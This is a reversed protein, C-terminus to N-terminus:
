DVGLDRLMSKTLSQRIDFYGEWPDSRLSSLRRFINQITYQDPKLEPRIEDWSVTVAVPAGPRARTSFPAVATAGRGNRLYDIFIKGKRQSKSSKTLFKNPSQDRVREAIAKAAPKVVDFGHRRTLPAVVHIGKGGTLKPFSELDFGALVDRLLYAAGLVEEWEVDDAPDLDFILTDPRELRDNRSLWPHIELVGFQALTVLGEASNITLYEDKGSKEPVTVSAIVDPMGQSRHKQYFCQKKRGEPCRVISLPRDATYPLLYEAVDAYYQAVELKTIQADPFVKREPSTIEIGCVQNMESNPTKTKPRPRSQPKQTKSPASKETERVVDDPNRDERLGLFSPHRLRGDTTWETFSVEGVLDPTVWTVDKAERGEPPDAFPPTKRSLSNLKTRLDKLTTDDFGTGVRGAYVLDGSDSYVGLLLAGFGIRSGSPETFGAIVFEQRRTCKVKVWDRTRKGYYRSSARKGIIGELGTECAKRHFAVGHGDIHDSFRITNGDLSISRNLLARLASKRDLLKAGRLDKGDCWLLDFAYYTLETKGKGKLARQLAEFSSAGNDDLAVVEGDIIADGDIDKLAETIAAFKDTWAKDNRSLLEIKDGDKIAIIRYGDHKIEYLWGESQPPSDVLTALEPNVPRRLIKSQTAGKIDEPKETIGEAVQDITRDTLISSPERDVIPKGSQSSASSDKHKILLWANDDASKMRTLTWSGKLKKGHLTFKISGKEVATRPDTDGEPEWTGADWVLVTGAGYEGEPITGEFNAYDLPHDETMVALRKDSPNNSPGKPVAWSKLVGDCELRFDYHLRSADHKQVVFILEDGKKKSTDKGSPESTKRFDRKKWYTDLGKM